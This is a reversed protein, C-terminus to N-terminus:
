DFAKPQWISVANSKIIDRDHTALPVELIRATATIIRDAPDKHFPMLNNIEVVVEPTIRQFNIVSPNTAIRFWEDLPMPLIMGGNSVATQIEWLSIDSVMLPANQIELELSQRYEPKLRSDQNALWVWIHTDILIM